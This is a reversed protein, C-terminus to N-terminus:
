IDQGYAFRDAERVPRFVNFNRSIEFDNGTVTSIVLLSEDMQMLIYSTGFNAFYDTM